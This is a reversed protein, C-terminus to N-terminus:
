SPCVDSTFGLISSLKPSKPDCSITTEWNNALDLLFSLYSLTFANKTRRVNELALLQSDRCTRAHRRTNIAWYSTNPNDLIVDM